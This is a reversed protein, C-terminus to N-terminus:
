HHYSLQTGEWADRQQARNNNSIKRERREFSNGDRSSIGPQCATWHSITLSFSVLKHNIQFPPARGKMLRWEVGCDEENQGQTVGQHKDPAKGPHPQLLKKMNFGAGQTCLQLVAACRPAVGTVLYEEQSGRGLSCLFSYLNCTAPPQAQALAQALPNLKSTQLPLHALLLIKSYPFQQHLQLSYTKPM